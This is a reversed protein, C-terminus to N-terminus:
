LLSQKEHLARTVYDDIKKSFMDSPKFIFKKFFREKSKAYRVSDGLLGLFFSSNITYTNPPILITVTKDTKDIADLSYAARVNEGKTRGAYVPGGHEDLDIILEDKKAAM